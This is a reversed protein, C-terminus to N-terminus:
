DLAKKPLESWQVYHKVTDATLVGIVLTGSESLLLLKTGFPAAEMDKRLRWDPRTSYKTM